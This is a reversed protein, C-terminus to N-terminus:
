IRLKDFIQRMDSAVLNWDYKKAVMAKANSVLTDRLGRNDELKKVAKAISEPNEVEAFLGTPTTGPNQEPDFLFDVIGGVPTAIVPLGAAMAEIFSNGFGESLSPRVFIDSIKLYLPIENYPKHGLFIVRDELNQSRVKSVLSKELTGTGLILLKTKEPLFHLSDIIDAVGNKKELRSTTIMVEDWEGLGIEKRLTNRQDLPMPSEFKKVDVGNPVVHVDKKYGMIHAYDGLYTSIAQIEDARLFIRHLLPTVLAAKMRMTAIPNGEQLTLLYPVKPFSTKFFLAAFGAYAAMISWIADYKKENHLKRAFFFAEFPFTLKTASIRYINVNGIRERRPLDRSSRMTVMDFEIDPNRDTIEKVAVEAGGIVPYYELSFILIRKSM